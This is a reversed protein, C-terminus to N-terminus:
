LNHASAFLKGVIKDLMPHWKLRETSVDISDKVTKDPKSLLSLQFTVLTLTIDTVQRTFLAGLHPLGFVGKVFMSLYPM